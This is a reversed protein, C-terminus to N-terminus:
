ELESETDVANSLFAEEWRRAANYTEIGSKKVVCNYHDWNPLPESYPDKLLFSANTKPWFVVDGEVWKAPVLSIETKRLSKKIAVVKFMEM